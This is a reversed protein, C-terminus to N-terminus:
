RVGERMTESVDHVFVALLSRNSTLRMRSGVGMRQTGNVYYGRDTISGRVELTIYLDSRGEVPVMEVTGDQRRLLDLSPEAVIGVVTGLPQRDFQLHFVDGLDVAEVSFDRVGRQTVFTVYFTDDAVLIQQLGPAAQRYVFGAALGLVALVVLVDILSVKGFLRGKEDIVTM